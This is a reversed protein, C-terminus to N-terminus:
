TASRYRLSEIPVPAARSVKRISSPPRQENRCTTLIRLCYAWSPHEVKTTEDIAAMFWAQPVDAAFERFALVDPIVGIRNEWESKLAAYSPPLDTRALPATSEGGGSSESTVPDSVAVAPSTGSNGTSAEPEDPAPITSAQEKQHPSQHKLFNEVQIFRLGNVEYRTIFKGEALQNLLRDVPPNEYPFLSGKIWRPEDKLRGEKDAITWLGIFLLRGHAPVESLKANAFFGPKILRARAM